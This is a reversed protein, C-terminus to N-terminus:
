YHMYLAPILLVDHLQERTFDILLHLCKRSAIESYVRMSVRAQGTYTIHSSSVRTTMMHKYNTHRNAICYATHRCYQVINITTMHM